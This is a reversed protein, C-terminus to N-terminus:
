PARTGPRRATGSRYQLSLFARNEVYEGTADSTSRDSRSLELNLGLTPGLQWTASAGIEMSDITQGSAEFEEKGLDANLSVSLRNSMQRGISATWALRNHDLEPTEDYSDDSWNAGLALSTRNRHFQWNLSAFRNEFPASSSIVGSGGGPTGSGGGGLDSRLAESSDTLQTGLALELNSSASMERRVELRFRPDSTETGDELELWTYGVEASLETRAGTKDYSLYASARDYDTNGDDKFTVSETVGNLAVGNGNPSRRGISVGGLVRESDFPSREYDTQSYTAFIRALARGVLFELTPGTTFYNVNERTEPTVPAFPDNSEQGFSDQVVWTLRDPIIKFDLTGDFGGIVEGEYTDDLYHVYDADASVDATFRPRREQWDLVLGATAMSESVEDQEVRTINDSHGLGVDVTYTLEALAANGSGAALLGALLAIKRRRGM